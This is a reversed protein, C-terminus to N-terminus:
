AMASRTSLEVGRLLSRAARPTFVDLSVVQGDTSATVVQGHGTASYLAALLSVSITVAMEGRIETSGAIAFRLEATSQHYVMDDERSELNLTSSALNRGM